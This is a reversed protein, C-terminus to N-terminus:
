RTPRGQLKQSGAIMVCTEGWRERLLFSSRSSLGTRRLNHERSCCRSRPGSHAAPKKSTGLCSAWPLSREFATAPEGADYLAGALLILSQVPWTDSDASKALSRLPELQTKGDPRSWLDRLQNRQPDPDAAGAPQVSDVDSGAARPRRM